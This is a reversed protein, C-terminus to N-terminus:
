LSDGIYYLKRVAFKRNRDNATVNTWLIERVNYYESQAPLVCSKLSGFFQHICVLENNLPLLGSFSVTIQMGIKLGSLGM